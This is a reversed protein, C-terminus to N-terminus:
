HGHGAHGGLSSTVISAKLCFAGKCVYREGPELGETIEVNARDKAGITVPRQEFGDEDHIFVVPKGELTQVAEAPVCVPVSVRGTEVSGTVFLGPRWHGDHNQLLVRALVTRKEQDLVKGVHIIKGGSDPIGSGASISMWQGDRIRDIDKQFINFDAWVTELDAVVFVPSNGTLVEGSTIRREIITGSIPATIEYRMAAEDDRSTMKQIDQGSLGLAHLKQKAAHVQIRAEALANRADFFEKESSINRKLLDDERDFVTQALTLREQGSLFEAVTEALERSELIALAEGALVRDGLTNRVDRVIGGVRPTVRVTHDANLLIEGPFTTRAAIEGPGAVNTEIGYEAMKAEDLKIAGTEGAHESHAGADVKESPAATHVGVTEAGSKGTHIRPLIFATFAGLGSLIVITILQQRIKM